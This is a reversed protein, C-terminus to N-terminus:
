LTVPYPHGDIEVHLLLKGGLAAAYRELTSVLCDDRLETRSVESQTIKARRALKAQTLGRQARLLALTLKESRIDRRADKM